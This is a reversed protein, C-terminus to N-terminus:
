PTASNTSSPQRRHIRRRHRPRAYRPAGFSSKGLSGLLDKLTKFGLFDLSKDTVEVKVKVTPTARAARVRDARPRPQDLNLYGEDVLKQVLHELLQDLQEPSMNQLATQM